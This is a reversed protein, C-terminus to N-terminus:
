MPAIGPVQLFRSAPHHSTTSAGNKEETLVDFLLRQEDLSFGISELYKSTGGYTNDLYELLRRMVEKPARVFEDNTLGIRNFYASIQPISPELHAETEHYDEIIVDRPVGLCSLLLATMM